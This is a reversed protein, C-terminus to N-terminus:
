EEIISSTVAFSEEFEGLRGARDGGHGQRVGLSFGPGPARVHGQSVRLRGGQAREKRPSEFCAAAWLLTAAAALCKAPMFLACAQNCRLIFEVETFYNQSGGAPWMPLPLLSASQWLPTPGELSGSCFRGTGTTGPATLWRPLPNLLLASAEELPWAM